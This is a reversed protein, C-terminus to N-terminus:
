NMNVVMLLCYIVISYVECYNYLLTAFDMVDTENDNALLKDFHVVINLDTTTSLRDLRM